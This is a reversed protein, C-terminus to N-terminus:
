QKNNIPQKYNHIKNADEISLGYGVIDFPNWDAVTLYKPLNTPVNECNWFWYQDLMSQPTLYQYTIGLEKLVSQAHRTEKCNLEAEIYDFCLHQPM